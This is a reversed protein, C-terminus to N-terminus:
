SFLV